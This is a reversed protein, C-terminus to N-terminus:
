RYPRSLSLLQSPERMMMWFVLFVGKWSSHCDFRGPRNSSQYRFRHRLHRNRKLFSIKEFPTSLSEMAFDDHQPEVLPRSVGFIMAVCLLWFSEVSRSSRLEGVVVVVHVVSVVVPIRLLVSAPIEEPRRRTVSGRVRDNQCADRMM